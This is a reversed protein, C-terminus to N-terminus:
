EKDHIRKKFVAILPLAGFVIVFIFSGLLTGGFYIWLAITLLALMGGILFTMERFLLARGSGGEIAKKYTLETLPVSVMREGFNRLSDAFIFNPLTSNLIRV